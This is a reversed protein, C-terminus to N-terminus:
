QARCNVSKAEYSLFYKLSSLLRSRGLISAAPVLVIAAPVLVVITIATPLQVKKISLSLSILGNENPNPMSLYPSQCQVNGFRISAPSNSFLCIDTPMGAKRRREPRSFVSIFSQDKFLFFFPDAPDWIFQSIRFFGQEKSFRDPTRMTGRQEEEHEQLEDEEHSISRKGRFSGARYPFGLETPREICDFLNTWPRWIRPAWVIHDFLDEEMQQPDIDEEEEEFESEYKEYNQIMDLGLICDKETRSSGLLAGELELLGHVLDSDNEAFRYSITSTPQPSADNDSAGRGKEIHLLFGGTLCDHNPLLRRVLLLREKRGRSGANFDLVLQDFSLSLAHSLTLLFSEERIELVTVHDRKYGTKEMSIPYQYGIETWRRASYLRVYLHDAMALSHSCTHSKDRGRKLASGCLSGFHLMGLPRAGRVPFLCLFSDLDERKICHSARTLSSEKTGKRQEPPTFSFYSWASDSSPTTKHCTRVKEYDHARPLLSAKKKQSPIPHRSYARCINEPLLSAPKLLSRLAKAAPEIPGPDLTCNLWNANLRHSQRKNLLSLPLPFLQGQTGAMALTKLTGRNAQTQARAGRRKQSAPGPRMVGTPSQVKLNEALRERETCFDRVESRIHALLGIKGPVPLHRM